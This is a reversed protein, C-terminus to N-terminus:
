IKGDHAAAHLVSVATTMLSIGTANPVAMIRGSTRASMATRTSEGPSCNIEEFGVYTATRVTKKRVVSPVPVATLASLPGVTMWHAIVAAAMMYDASITGSSLAASTLM